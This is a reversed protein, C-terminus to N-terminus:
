IRKIGRIVYYGDEWIEESNNLTLRPPTFIIRHLFEFKNLDDLTVKVYKYAETFLPVGNEMGSQTVMFKKCSSKEIANAMCCTIDASWSPSFKFTNTIGDIFKPITYAVGYTEAESTAEEMEPLIQDPWFTM